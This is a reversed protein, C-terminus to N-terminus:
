VPKPEAVDGGYTGESEATGGGYTALAIAVDGGYVAVPIAVGGTIPIVFVIAFILDAAKGTV